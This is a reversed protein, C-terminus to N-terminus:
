AVLARGAATIQAQGAGHDFDILGAAVLGEMMDSFKKHGIFYRRESHDHLEGLGATGGKEILLKLM